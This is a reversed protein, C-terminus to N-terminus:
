LTEVNAGPAPETFTVSDIDVKDQEKKDSAAKVQKAEAKERKKKQAATEEKMPTLWSPLPDLPADTTVVGKRPHGPQHLVSGMFGPATVKYRPM